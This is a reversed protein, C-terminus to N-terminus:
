NTFVPEGPPPPLLLLLLRGGLFPAFPSVGDGGDDDKGEAMIIYDQRDLVLFSEFHPTGVWGALSRSCRPKPWGRLQSGEGKVWRHPASTQSTLSSARDGPKPKPVYVHRISGRTKANDITLPHNDNVHEAVKSRFHHTLGKEADRSAKTVEALHEKTRTELNRRTQGIYVKECQPCSIEYVGSKRQEEIPDKTSGLKNKLQNNRSTYVLDIGFKRMKQRLPRTINGDYEVAVRKLEPTIPTLTTLSKKYEDRRKKSIMNQITTEKYGNLKAIELIHALEKQKGLESLPLTEMRHTMHHFAAMKHQHSHNSSSPIVRKTNTPKRYIEIETETSEIQRIIIIDLFPLKGDKELEYTFHINRHTGNMAALITELEGKKIISFIDDCLFPSLPNGMPAGKLQKYYSDRFTFYNEEMCLRTLKLYGGVKKRWANDEHQKLLWDELLSISEKVPVSPFLATVDFSVMIDDEALEGSTKLYQAFERTSSGSRSPFKIPMRQFETVLWKAIKETPSGNATIIERM